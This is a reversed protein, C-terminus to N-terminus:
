KSVIFVNGFMFRHNQVDPCGVVVYLVMVPMKCIKVILKSSTTSIDSSNKLPLRNLFIQFFSCTVLSSGITKNRLNM